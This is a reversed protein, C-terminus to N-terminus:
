SRPPYLGDTAIVCRLVTYPQLISFAQGGGMNQETVETTTNTVVSGANMEVTPAATSFIKTASVSSRAISNGAPPITDGATTVANLTSTSSASVAVNHKHAALNAVQLAATPYGSMQGMQYTGIGPGTGTHIPVRGRMDPLGFTTTGNGGFRTGLLSFLATNSSINLLQGDCNAYGRPAFTFAVYEVSGLYESGTDSAAQVGASLGTLCLSMGLAAVVSKKCDIKKM